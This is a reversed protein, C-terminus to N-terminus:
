IWDEVDLSKNWESNVREVWEDVKKPNIGDNLKDIAEMYLATNKTMLNNYKNYLSNRYEMNDYKSLRRKELKTTLWIFPAFIFSFLVGVFSLSSFLMKIFEPSNSFIVGCTSGIIICPLGILFFMNKTKTKKM